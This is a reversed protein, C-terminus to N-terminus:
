LIIFTSENANKGEQIVFLKLVQRFLNNKYRMGGRAPPFTKQMQM